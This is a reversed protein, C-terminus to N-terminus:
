GMRVHPQAAEAPLEDGSLAGWQSPTFDLEIIEPQRPEVTRRREHGDPPLQDRRRRDHGSRREVTPAAQLTGIAKGM